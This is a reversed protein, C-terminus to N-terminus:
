ARPRPNGHVALGLIGVLAGMISISLGATQPATVTAARGRRMTAPIEGNAPRRSSPNSAEAIGVATHAPTESALHFTHGQQLLRGPRDANLGPGVAAFACVALVLGLGSGTAM